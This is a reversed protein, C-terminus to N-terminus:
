GVMIRGEPYKLLPPSKSSSVALALTLPGTRGIFMVATILLRGWPSLQPTLGTSLGVTGFASTVEFMAHLMDKATRGEIVLLALLSLVVLLSSLGIIIIAKQIEKKPITRKFLSVREKGSMMARMSALFIALTTTKVGGATSGPSAGIFMLLIFVMSTSINMLGTPLTNFGATRTTVSSFFSALLKGPLSLPQLTNSWELVLVSVMGISILIATSSLIVKSQMSLTRHGKGRRAAELYRRLDLLVVFGIGGLIILFAIVLNVTVEEQFPILSNSFLAFGANCFASVSHFVAYYIAKTTGM